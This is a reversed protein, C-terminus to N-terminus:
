DGKAALRPTDELRRAILVIGALPDVQSRWEGGHVLEIFRALDDARSRIEEGPDCAGYRKAEAILRAVTRPAQVGPAVETKRFVFCGLRVVRETDYEIRLAM